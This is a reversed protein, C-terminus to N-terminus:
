INENELFVKIVLMELETLERWKVDGLGPGFKELIYTRFGGTYVDGVEWNHSIHKDSIIRM